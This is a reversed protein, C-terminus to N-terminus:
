LRVGHRAKRSHLQAQCISFVLCVAYAGAALYCARAIQEPHAPDKVSETFSPSKIDFLYGLVLLFIVGVFSVVSCFYANGEGCVIM